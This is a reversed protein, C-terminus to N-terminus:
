LVRHSCWRKAARDEGLLGRLRSMRVFRIHRMIQLSLVSPYIEADGAAIGGEHPPKYLPRKGRRDVGPKLFVQARRARDDAAGSQGQPWM